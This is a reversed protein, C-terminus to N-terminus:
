WHFVVFFNYQWGIEGWFWFPSCKGVYKLMRYGKKMEGELRIINDESDVSDDLDSFDPKKFCNYITRKIVKFRWSEYLTELYGKM